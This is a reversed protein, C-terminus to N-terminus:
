VCTRPSRISARCFNAATRGAVNPWAPLILPIVGASIARSVIWRWLFPTPSMPALYSPIARVVRYPRPLPPDGLRGDLVPSGALLRGARLDPGVLVRLDAVRQREASEVVLITARM